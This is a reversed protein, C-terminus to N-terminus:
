KGITCTYSTQAMTQRLQKNMVQQQVYAGNRWAAISIRYLFESYDEDKFMSMHQGEREWWVEFAQQSNM